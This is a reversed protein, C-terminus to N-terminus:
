NHCVTGEAIARVQDLNRMATCIMVMREVGAAKARALFM